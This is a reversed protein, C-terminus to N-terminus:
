GTCNQEYLFYSFFTPFVNFYPPPISLPFSLFFSLPVSADSALRKDSSRTNMYINTGIYFATRYFICPSYEPTCILVKCNWMYLSNVSDCISFMTTCYFFRIFLGSPTSFQFRIDTNPNFMRRSFRWIGQISIRPGFFSLALQWLVRSTIDQWM